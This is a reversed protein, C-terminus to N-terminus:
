GPFFDVTDGELDITLHYNDFFAIDINTHSGKEGGDFARIQVMGLHWGKWHLVPLPAQSHLM